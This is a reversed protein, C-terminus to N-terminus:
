RAEDALRTLEQRFDDDPVERPTSWPTPNSKGSGLVQLDGEIDVVRGDVNLCYESTALVSDIEYPDDNGPILYIPVGSGDMRDAGYLRLRAANLRTRWGKESAHIDSAVYLRVSRPPVRGVGAPDGPVDDRRGRRRGSESSGSRRLHPHGLRIRRDHVVSRNPQLLRTRE